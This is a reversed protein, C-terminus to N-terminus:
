NIDKASHTARGLPLMRDGHTEGYKDAIHARYLTSLDRLWVQGGHATRSYPRPPPMEWVPSGQGFYSLYVYRQGSSVPNVKHAAVFNAPFMLIDGPSPSVVIELYPFEIEGGSWSGGVYAISALVHHAGLQQAPEKGFQFNIDNDAHLGLQAGEAYKIYHGETEWWLCPLAMPYIELYSPLLDWFVDEISVAYDLSKDSLSSIRVCTKALDAVPIRHGSKNLVCEIGNVITPPEYHEKLSADVANDLEKLVVSTAPEFISQFLVVGPALVRGEPHTQHNM